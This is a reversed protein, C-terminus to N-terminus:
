YVFFFRVNKKTGAAFQGYPLSDRRYDTGRCVTGRCVTGVAFHGVVFVGVDFFGLAMRISDHLYTSFFFLLLITASETNKLFNIRKLIDGRGETGRKKGGFHSIDQKQIKIELGRLKYVFNLQVFFDSIQKANM